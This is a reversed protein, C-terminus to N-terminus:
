SWGLRDAYEAGAALERRYIWRVWRIPMVRYTWLPLRQLASRRDSVADPM